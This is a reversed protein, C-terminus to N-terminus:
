EDEYNPPTVVEIIIKQEIAGGDKGILELISRDGYREPYNHALFKEIARQNGDLVNKYLMSEATDILRKREMEVLEAFDDNKLWNYYTKRVIGFGECANAIHFLQKKLVDIFDKQKKTIPM